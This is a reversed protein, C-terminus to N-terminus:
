ESYFRDLKLTERSDHPYFNRSIQDSLVNVFKHRFRKEDSKQHALNFPIGNEPPYITDILDLTYAIEDENVDYIEIEVAATGQLMNKGEYLKFASVDISVVLDVDMAKGFEGVSKLQHEDLWDIIENQSVLEIDDVHERLKKSVAKAIERDVGYYQMALATNPQCLVAVRQKELGEYKADVDNPNVVWLGTAVLSCGTAPAMFLLLGLLLYTASCNWGLFHKMPTPRTMECYLLTELGTPEAVIADGTAIWLAMKPRTVPGAVTSGQVM